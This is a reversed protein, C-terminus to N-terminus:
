PSQIKTLLGLLNFSYQTPNAVDICLAYTREPTATEHWLSHVRLSLDNGFAVLDGVEFGGVGAPDATLPILGGDDAGVIVESRSPSPAICELLAQDPPGVSVASCVHFQTRSGDTYCSLVTIAAM